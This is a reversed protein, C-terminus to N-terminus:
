LLLTIDVYKKSMQRQYRDTHFCIFKNRSFPRVVREAALRGVESSHIFYPDVIRIKPTAIVDTNSTM